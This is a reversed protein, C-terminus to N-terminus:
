LKQNLVESRGKTNQVCVHVVSDDTHILNFYFCKSKVRLWVAISSEGAENKAFCQFMGNDGMLLKKIVLSNDEEIAFRKDNEDIKIANKYWTINPKPIGDVDCPLHLQSGYDGFVETRTNSFFKPKELVVVGASAVVKPFGGTRLSVHCEYVGSHTLNASVLTLTRNWYDNLTYSIGTNDILIGDKYWLIELEHLPRANAICELTSQGTGKVIQVDKPKIIIEPAIEKVDENKIVNLRVFASNEERGEQTNIARARYAKIDSQDASLIILQNAKSKAYKQTYPLPNGDVQWTVDPEPYSEIPPLDLIAAQGEEVTVTKETKDEFAGM